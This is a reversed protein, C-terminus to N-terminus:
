ILVHLITQIQAIYPSNSLKQLITTISSLKLHKEETGVNFDGLILVQEHTTSHFGPYISFANLHSCFLKIQKNSFNILWKEKVLNLAVYFTEIHDKKASQLCTLLFIKELTCSAVVM